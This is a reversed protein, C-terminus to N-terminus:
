HRPGEETGARAVETTILRTPGGAQECVTQWRRKGLTGDGGFNGM